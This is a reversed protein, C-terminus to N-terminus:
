LKDWVCEMPDPPVLFSEIHRRVGSDVLSLPGHGQRQGVQILALREANAWRLARHLFERGVKATLHAGIPLTSMQSEFAHYGEGIEILDGAGLTIVPPAGYISDNAFNEVLGDVDTEDDEGRRKHLDVRKGGGYEFRRTARACHMGLLVSRTGEYKSYQERLYDLMTANQDEDFMAPTESDNLRNSFECASVVMDEVPMGFFTAFGFPNQPDDSLRSILLKAMSQFWYRAVEVQLREVLQIKGYNSFDAKGPSLKRRFNRLWAESKSCVKASLLKGGGGRTIFDPARM